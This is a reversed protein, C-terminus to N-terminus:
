KPIKVDSLSKVYKDLRKIEKELIGIAQRVKKDNTGKYQELEITTATIEKQLKFILANRLGELIDGDLKAYLKRDKQNKIKKIIGVLELLDLSLSIAALSYGTKKSLEQLSLPKNTVLLAAIVRGHVENYGISSAIAAFTSYIREELQQRM